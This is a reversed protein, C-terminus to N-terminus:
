PLRRLREEPSRGLWSSRCTRALSSIQIRNDQALRELLQIGQRFMREWTDGKSYEVQADQYAGWEKFLAATSDEGAFFAAM